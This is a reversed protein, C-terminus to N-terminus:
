GRPQWKSAHALQKGVAVYLLYWLGGPRTICFSEVSRVSMLTHWADEAGIPLPLRLLLLRPLCTPLLVFVFWTSQTGRAKRHQELSVVTNDALSSSGHPGAEAQFLCHVGMAWGADLLVVACPCTHWCSRNAFLQKMAPSVDAKLIFCGATELLDM